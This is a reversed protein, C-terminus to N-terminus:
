CWKATSHLQPQLRRPFCEFEANNSTWAWKNQGLAINQESDQSLLFHLCSEAVLVQSKWALALTKVSYTLTRLLYPLYPDSHVKRQLIFHIKFAFINKKCM